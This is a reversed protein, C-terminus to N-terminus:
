GEDRYARSIEVLWDRFQELAPNPRADMPSVFYYSSTNQYVESDLIELEGAEVEDACLYAPILAIGLGQVAASLSQLADPYILHEIDMGQLDGGVIDEWHIHQSSINKAGYYYDILRHGRPNAPSEPRGHKALYAPSAVVQMKLSILLDSHLNDFNGDAFRLAADFGDNKFSVLETGEDLVVTVGPHREYFDGLKPMLWKFLISPPASIKLAQRSKKRVVSEAAEAIQQLAQQVEAAFIEAEDTLTISNVSRHFLEKGFHDELNRLQQSVAGQSVCLEEAARSVSGQRSVAEFARLANMPPLKMM